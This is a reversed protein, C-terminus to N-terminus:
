RENAKVLSVSGITMATFLLIVGVATNDEGGAAFAAIALFLVAGALIGWGKAQDKAQQRSKAPIQRESKASPSISHAPKDTLRAGCLVCYQRSVANIAGCEPCEVLVPQKEKAPSAYTGNVPQEVTPESPQTLLRELKELGGEELLTTAQDLREARGNLEEAQKELAYLREQLGAKEWVCRVQAQQLEKLRQEIEAQEVSLHKEEAELATHRGSLDAREAALEQQEKELSAREQELRETLERRKALKAQAEGLLRAGESHDSQLELLREGAAVAAEFQGADLAERMQGALRAVEAAIREAVAATQLEELAGLFEPVSAYREEMQRALARAVVGGIDLPVDIPWEEPLEAGRDHARMVVMPTEGAFLVEGTLMEYAVCALAYVDTAPTAKVGEWIEPPIYAPTGVIGGSLSQTLSSTGVLRAFGFDSLMAGSREDLLINHPKIDRHIVDEEHAYALADSVQRLIDLTEEWPFRGQTALRQALSPGRVLRMAIFLRGDGEGVEYIPVIHPHELSAAARAEQQFRAVFAEDRMLLPDLVKLAVERELTTDLARYVTAFGGHGLEELIRYKGLTQETM